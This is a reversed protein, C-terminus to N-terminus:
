TALEALRQIPPPPLPSTWASLFFELEDDTAQLVAESEGDAIAVIWTTSGPARTAVLMSDDPVFLKARGRGRCVLGGNVALEDYRGGWNFLAALAFAGLLAVWSLFAVSPRGAQWSRWASPGALLLCCLVVFPGGVHKTFRRLRRQFPASPDSFVHAARENQAGGDRNDRQSELVARVGADSEDLPSPEIAYELPRIPRLLKSGGIRIIARAHGAARLKRALTRATRQGSVLVRLVRPTSAERSFEDPTSSQALREVTEASRSRNRIYVFVFAVVALVGAVWPGANLPLMAVACTCPALALMVVTVAVIIRKASGRNAEDAPIDIVHGTAM